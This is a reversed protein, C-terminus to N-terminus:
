LKSRFDLSASTKVTNDSAITLIWDNKALYKISKNIKQFIEKVSM